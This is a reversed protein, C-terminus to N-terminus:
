PRVPFLGQVCIIYNIAMYPPMNDHSHYGGESTSIIDNAMKVEFDNGQKICYRDNPTKTLFRTAPDSSDADVTLAYSAHTHGPFTNLNITVNEVGGSQGLARNTLGAGQGTGIAARCQLNPLAFNNVGNGGYTTGIVTFLAENGSISLTRGDCPLWGVPVFAYGTFPKIIGLFEDM